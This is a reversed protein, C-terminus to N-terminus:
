GLPMSWSLTEHGPAFMRNSQAPNRNVFPRGFLPHRLSRVEHEVTFLVKGSDPDVIDKFRYQHQDDEQSVLGREGLRKYPGSFDSLYIAVHHGDFPPHTRDSESYVLTQDIGVVAHASLVGKEEAVRAPTGIIQRYFKAIGEATGRPVDFAVYPIGLMMRGFRPGPEFVRLQNGWPCTVAVHDAQPDVAFKTAALQERVQGLRQLMAERGPIVLATHGRLIQPQGSPLHFQSRGANIWMNTVGTMLYPDRTLGLGSVYFITALNQDPVRTNVHELGVVNGIDEVTRDFRPKDQM